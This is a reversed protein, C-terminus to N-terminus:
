KSRRPKAPGKLFSARCGTAATKRTGTVSLSRAGHSSSEAVRRFLPLLLKRLSQRPKESSFTPATAPLAHDLLDLATM